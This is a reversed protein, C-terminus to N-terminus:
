KLGFLNHSRLLNTYMIGSMQFHRAHYPTSFDRLGQLFPPLPSKEFDQCAVWGWFRTHNFTISMFKTGGSIVAPTCPKGQWFMAECPLGQVGAENKRASHRVPYTIGDAVNQTYSSGGSVCFTRAPIAFGPGSRTPRPLTIEFLSDVLLMTWSFCSLCSCSM